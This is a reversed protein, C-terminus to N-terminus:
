SLLNISMLHHMLKQGFLCVQNPYELDYFPIHELSSM